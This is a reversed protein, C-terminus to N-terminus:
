AGVEIRGTGGDVTITQGDSLLSTANGTAVVAPVAFERAIIAPHSLLGGTDTVLAGVNNFLVSWVPSTIPCVLVDGPRLKGFQSEDRILRVPGTYRGPAAAVGDIFRSDMQQARGSPGAEFVRDIYWLLGKMLFRAETPLADLGPSPGPERGYTAPGPHQEIFAQEGRRHEVVARRPHGDALAAQAEDMTLFFIHDRRDLQDRDALRRGIELLPYRLLAIPVSVTRFENDERVPYAREARALAREFRNRDAAPRGVLAARARGVAATRRGAHGRADADPNADRDLQDAILRLTLEPTEALSPDAIEYRVARCGFELQYAALARAFEADVDALRDPTPGGVEGLMARVPPRRAALAALEALRRSPETSTTSLGTLLDCAQGDTWGLLDRCTFVFEALIPMLAGHLLIHIDVGEQLLAHARETHGRLAQDDLAGLDVDRLADQRGILEPRWQGYWQEVFGGAKDSRIATVADAIRGRLRPVLRILLPVLAAPPAPRDKGGLPVLRTYEWGGIQAFELGDALLGFEAFMRRMARNRSGGAFVSVCMPTWPVPAHSAEREWFGPPVRVPVPVPVPPPEPLATVPRAQLVVLRGDVLAWEVDQPGGRLAEIRRALAAVEATLGADIAGEPAARCSVDDGRVVWEDPSVEGSVLRDARGRVASVVATDRDGSVPDATFAVGAAAAAVMPQVLVALRPDPAVGRSRRYATVHDAFASSWCRRVASALADAPVDLVTEYQGAYSAAALDEAVGSSRVALPRDGWRAAITDIAAAVETTLPAARVQDPDTTGALGAAELTLELADATLVMGDPVTLGARRLEGLTAAKRGVRATDAEGVDDLSLVLDTRTLTMATVKRGDARRLHDDTAPDIAM